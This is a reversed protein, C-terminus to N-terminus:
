WHLRIRQRVFEALGEVDPFLSLDHINMQFLREEFEKLKGEPIRFRKYWQDGLDGMMLELSAEFSLGMAGNFLFVGQQSSLRLNQVPPLAVAVLGKSNFHTRRDKCPNLADRVAADLYADEDRVRDFSWSQDAPRVGIRGGGTPLGISKRATKDAERSVKIAQQLVAGADIGWVEAYRASGKKRHRLAFYLAVYPSYTFDLLRTPAGYHQMMALWSLEHDPGAPPLRSPDIHMGAKSQFERLALYEIEAWERDQRAREISPELRHKQSKQGRYIWGEWAESDEYRRIGPKPLRDFAETVTAWHACPVINIGFRSEQEEAM